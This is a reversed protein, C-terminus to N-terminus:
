LLGYFFTTFEHANHFALIPWLLALTIFYTLLPNISLGNVEFTFSIIIPSPFSLLILLLGHPHLILIPRPHGLFPFPSLIGLFFFHALSAWSCHFPNPFGSTTLICVWYYYQAGIVLYFSLMCCAQFLGLLCSGFSVVAPIVSHCPLFALLDVFSAFLPNFLSFGMILCPGARSPLLGYLIFAWFGTWAMLPWSHAAFHVVPRWAM